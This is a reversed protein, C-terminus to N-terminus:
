SERVYARRIRPDICACIIDVSLNIVIVLSGVFITLGMILTYDRDAIASVFQRGLGPITFISEVVFSGTLLFAAASGLYNLVPIWIHCLMHTLITRKRKLGKAKALVVYEKQAEERFVNATLRTVVAAPYLTLSVVPLVHHRFTSLGAVPFIKWTVGFLFLLGLAAVFSPIGAGLLTGGFIGARVWRKQSSAQWIGMPIGVCAALLLAPIGIQLTAPLSERIIDAVSQGPNQYSYGLNGHLLNAVYTGYQIWVPENLGYEEEMMELVEGSVNASQFPSGPIARALFFTVGVLVFLSLIGVLIRKLIYNAM